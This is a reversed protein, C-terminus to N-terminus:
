NALYNPRLLITDHRICYIAIKKLKLPRLFHISICKNWLSVLWVETHTSSASYVVQLYETELSFFFFQLPFLICTKSYKSHKRGRIKGKKKKKKQSFSQKHKERKKEWRGNGFWRNQCFIDRSVLSKTGTIINFTM